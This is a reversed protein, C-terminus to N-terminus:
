ADLCERIPQYWAKLEELISCTANGALGCAELANLNGVYARAEAIGETVWPKRYANFIVESGIANVQDIADSRWGIHVSM